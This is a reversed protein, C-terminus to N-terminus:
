AIVRREDDLAWGQREAERAFWAVCEAEQNPNPIRGTAGCRECPWGARREHPKFMKALLTYDHGYLTFGLEHGRGECDPCDIEAFWARIKGPVGGYVGSAMTEAEFLKFRLRDSPRICGECSMDDCSPEHSVYFWVSGLPIMPTSEVELASRLCPRRVPCRACTAMFDRLDRTSPYAEPDRLAADEPYAVDWTAGPRQPGEGGPLSGSRCLAEAHWAPELRDYLERAQDKRREHDVERRREAIAPHITLRAERDCMRTLMGERRQAM